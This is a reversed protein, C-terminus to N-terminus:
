AQRATTPAQATTHPRQTHHCSAPHQFRADPAAAPDRSTTNKWCPMRSVLRPQTLLPTCTLGPGQQHNNTGTLKLQVGVPLANTAVYGAQGAVGGEMGKRANEEDRFGRTCPLWANAAHSLPM